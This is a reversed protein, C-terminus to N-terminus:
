SPMSPLALTLCRVGGGAKVFESVDITRLTFGTDALPQRLPEAGTTAVVDTGLVVVNCGFACAVTRPVDIVRPVLERLLTEADPALVGRAVLLTGADLAACCMDLHFFWPDALHMAVVELGTREALAAAARADTRFGHGLLLREGIRVADGGEFRVGRPLPLVELDRAEFTTRWHSEERRREAHRFTAPVVWGDGALGADAAFVMDPLGPCPEVTVVDAGLAVYVAALQGWQAHALAGDVAGARRMWPNIAYEIRFEAPGCLMVRGTAPRRAVPLPWPVTPDTERLM